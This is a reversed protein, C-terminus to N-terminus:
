MSYLDNIRKLSEDSSIDTWCSSVNKGKCINAFDSGFAIKTKELNMDSVNYGSPNNRWGCFYIKNADEVKRKKSIIKIVDSYNPKQHFKEPIKSNLVNFFNIPKFTSNPNFKIELYEILKKYDSENMFAKTCYDENIEIEFVTPKDGLTSLYFINKDNDIDNNILFLCSFNKNNYTFPFIVKEENKRKMDKSLLKLSTFEYM